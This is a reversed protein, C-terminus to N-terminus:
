PVTYITQRTASNRNADRVQIQWTYSHGSTLSASSARGDANYLVQLPTTTSPLGNDKPYNWNTSDSNGNLNLKYIFSAPPSSPAAWTFLPVTTTGPATTQAVLSQAFSDIVGTVSASLNQTTGDSYTVKFTYTDGVTPRTSGLWIWRSNNPDIVMDFPVAVNLGSILTMAVAHKTGDNIRPILSYNNNTGDFQHDTEVSATASASTLTLNSTTIGSVTIGSATDNANNIDGSDVIGNNNM